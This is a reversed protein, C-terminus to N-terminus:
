HKTFVNLQVQTSHSLTGAVGTINVTYNGVPTHNKDTSLIMVSSAGGSGPTVSAPSFACSSDTPLGSCSLAISNAFTGGLPTLSVTFNYSTGRLLAVSSPNVNIYFDLGTGNLSLNQPSSDANESIVLLGSQSGWASPAFTININCSAGASLSTGCNTNFSFEGSTTSISNIMMPATGVNGLTVTQPASITTVMQPTFTLATTSFSAVPAVGTGALNVTQPSGSANDAITLMGTVSGRGVPSFSVNITCSSGAALSAPCNNTQLFPGGNIGISNISLAGSGSNSLTVPMPASTTGVFQNPFALSGPSVSATPAPSVGTGTLSVYGSGGTISTATLSGFTTGAAVPTFAINFTCSTGGPVGLAPCNSTQTFSGVVQISAFQFCTAGVSTLTAFQATSTTGVLQSAFTLNGPSISGSMIPHLEYAGLDITSICDNNGDWIRANGDFDNQPLNAASNTGVDIVPSGSQLHFDTAASIFQPDVSINGPQSSTDCIGAWDQGSSSFADNYSFAPSVSSYISNCTVAVQATAAVVINNTFTANQGFGTVLIGSTQDVATNGAVTNNLFTQPSSGPSVWVGGGSGGGLASNNVIVNQVVTPSNYSQVGMGGGNNYATNGQILNGQVLPSSFYTISIGGGNGGFAVSNNTISNEIIQPAAPSTDSGSVLIGGGGQGGDGAGRQDNATITNNQILPSGGNVYIGIGIAAHNGTIVNGSITPSAGSILIGGGALGNQLGNTITFGNLKSNSSEGSNFTVVSGHAGGDITTASPGGSSTVQIAKGGFNINEVYTGPAVLVTDGNNAANIAAQITAQNAPVNIVNQASLFPAPVCILILCGALHVITRKLGAVCKPM